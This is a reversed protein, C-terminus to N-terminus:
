EEGGTLAVYAERDLLEGLASTDVKLKVLGAGGKGTGSYVHGEHAVPTPINAPSGEATKDYRWLFKGTKADVGVVGKQLFQVYQKVGGAEAIIVSAYASEDGGPM